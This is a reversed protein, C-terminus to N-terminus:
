YFKEGCNSFGGFKGSCARVVHGWHYSHGRTPTQPEQGSLICSDHHTRQGSESDILVNAWCYLASRLVHKFFWWLTNSFHTKHERRCVTALSISLVVSFWMLPKVSSEDEYKCLLEGDDKTTSVDASAWVCVSSSLFCEQYTFRGPKM